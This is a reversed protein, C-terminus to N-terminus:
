SQSFAILFLYYVYKQSDVNIIRVGFDSPIFKSGQPVKKLEGISKLIQDSMDRNKEGYAVALQLELIILELVPHRDVAGQPLNQFFGDIYNKLGDVDNNNFFSGIVEEDFVCLSVYFFYENLLM